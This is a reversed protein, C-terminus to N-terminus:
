QPIEPLTFIYLNIHHQYHIRGMLFGCKELSQLTEFRIIVWKRVLVMLILSPM